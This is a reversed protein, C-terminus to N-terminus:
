KKMIKKGILFILIFMLFHLFVNLIFNLLNVGHLECDRSEYQFKFPFGVNIFYNVDYKLLLLHEIFACSLTTMISFIFLFCFFIIKKM